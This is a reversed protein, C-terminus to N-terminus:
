RPLPSRTASARDALRGHQTLWRDGHEKLIKKNGGDKSIAKDLEKLSKRVGKADEEAATYYAVVENQLEQCKSIGRSEYDPKPVTAAAANLEEEFRSDFTGQDPSSPLQRVKKLFVVITLYPWKATRDLFKKLQADNLSSKDNQFEQEYLLQRGQRDPYVIPLARDIRGRRILATDINEVYNTAILFCIEQRSCADRLDALRNLMAPIVLKLFTPNPDQPKRQRLLEDVEDFLITVGRLGSILRFILRAESDLRDEGMRTFDAPTIQLLRPKEGWCESTKWMESAIAQVTVTKSSGPPGHLVLSYEANDSDSEAEVAMQSLMRHLRCRHPAGLDGPKLGSLDLVSDVVTFRSKALQWLRFEMLDRVELLANVAHATAWLDIRGLNRWRDSGWGVVQCSETAHSEEGSSGIKKLKVSVKERTKELWKVYSMIAPDAVEIDPHRRLIATLTWVIDSTIPWAGLMQSSSYFPQGLRWSGDNRVGAVAQNLAYAVQSEAPLEDWHVAIALASVLEAPDFDTDNGASTHALHRELEHRSWRATDGVAKKMKSAIRRNAEALRSLAERAGNNCKLYEPSCLVIAENLSELIEKSVKMAYTCSKKLDKWFGPKVIFERPFRFGKHTFGEAKAAEELKKTDSVAHDGNFHEEKFEKIKNVLETEVKNLLGSANKLGEHSATYIKRLVIDIQQEVTRTCEAVDASESSSAIKGLADQIKLGCKILEDPAVSIQALNRLRSLLQEVLSIYQWLDTQRTRDGGLRFKGVKELLKQISFYYNARKNCVIRLVAMPILCKATVYATPTRHGLSVGQSLRGPFRRRVAWTMAFFTLFGMPTHAHVEGAGLFVRSVYACTFPNLKGFTSSNLLEFCAKLDTGNPKFSQFVSCRLDDLKRKKERDLWAFRRKLRDVRQLALCVAARTLLHRGRASRADEEIWPPFYLRQGVQLSPLADDESFDYKTLRLLSLVPDKLTGDIRTILSLIAEVRSEVSSESEYM